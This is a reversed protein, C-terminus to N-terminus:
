PQGKRLAEARVRGAPTLTAKGAKFIPDAKDMADWANRAELKEVIGLCLPNAKAVEVRRPDHEYPSTVGTAYRFVDYMM